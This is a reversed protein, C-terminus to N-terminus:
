LDGEEEPLFDAAPAAKTAPVSGLLSYSDVSLDVFFGGSTRPKTTVRAEISIVAGRKVYKLLSSANHGFAKLPITTAEIQEQGERDQYKRKTQITLLALTKGEGYAESTISQVIGCLLAKNM